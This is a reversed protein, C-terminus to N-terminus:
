ERCAIYIHDFAPAFYENGGHRFENNFRVYFRTVDPEPQDLSQLRFEASTKDAMYEFRDYFARLLLLITTLRQQGDIVESQKSNNMDSKLSIM